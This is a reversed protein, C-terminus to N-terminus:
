ESPNLSAPISIEMSTYKNKESDIKIDSQSIELIRKVIALGLGLGEMNKNDEDNRKFLEVEELKKIGIGTGNDEIKIKYRDRCLKGSIKIPSGIRSYKIANELLECMLTEFNSEEMKVTGTGLKVTLDNEREHDEALKKLMATHTNKNIDVATFKYKGINLTLLCALHILKEIRRHLRKGSQNIRKLMDKIEDTTFSEFNSEMLESFGLIGILPTRLEHPVNKIFTNKIEEVVHEFNKKKKLRTNIARLVDDSLFPKTIYDDAGILMGARIDKMEVKASLFILPITSTNQESQLKNLLQFGDMKPMRIDSIILDPFYSKAIQYGEEGNAASLVNYGESELLEQLDERIPFEDEVVLITDLCVGSNYESKM